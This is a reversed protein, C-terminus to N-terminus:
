ESKKSIGAEKMMIAILEKARKMSLDSHIKFVFPVDAYVKKDSADTFPYTSDVFKSPDLKMYLKVRTGAITMKMYKVTHLRFTDGTDTVRSKIGYALMEDRVENYQNRTSNDAKKLKDEFPVREFVKKKAPAAPAEANIPADRFDMVPKKAAKEEKPKEKTPDKDTFEVVKKKNAEEEAKRAEEEAKKEEEEKAKAEEEAKAKAEAEAEEEQKAKAEAEAKQKEEEEQKAKEEEAQRQEEEKAKKEAEAKEEEEKKLRAEEEEQAKKAEAEEQAKKAEEEKKAEENEKAAQAPIPEAEKVPAPNDAPKEEKAQSVMATEEAKQPVLYSMVIAFINVIIFALLFGALLYIAMRITFDTGGNKYSVDKYVDFLSNFIDLGKLSALLIWEGFFFFMRNIISGYSALAKKKDNVDFLIEMIIFFVFLAAIAGGLIYAKLGTYTSKTFLAGVEVIASLFNDEEGGNHLGLGYFCCVFGILFVTGLLLLGTIKSKKVDSLYYEKKNEM